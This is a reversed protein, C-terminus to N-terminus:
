AQAQAGDNDPEARSKGALLNGLAESSVFTLVGLAPAILRTESFDAILFVIGVHILGAPLVVAMTRTISCTRVIVIALVPSAIAVAMKMSLLNGLLKTFYDGQTILFSSFIAQPHMWILMKPVLLSIGVLVASVSWERTTPWRREFAALTLPVFATAFVVDTRAFSIILGSVIAVPYRRSVLLFMQWFLGGAIFVAGMRGAFIATQTYFAFTLLCLWTATPTLLLTGLAFVALFSLSDFMYNIAVHTRFTSGRLHDDGLVQVYIEVIKSILPRIIGEVFEGHAFEREHDLSFQMQERLLNAEHATISAALCCSVLLGLVVPNFFRDRVKFLLVLPALAVLAPVAMGVYRLAGPFWRDSIGLRWWVVMLVNAVVWFGLVLRLPPTQVGEEVRMLRDLRSSLWNM